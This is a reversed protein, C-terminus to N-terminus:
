AQFEEINLISALHKDSSDLVLAIDVIGIRRVFCVHQSM